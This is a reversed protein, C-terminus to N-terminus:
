LVDALSQARTFFPLRFFICQMDSIRRKNFFKPLEHSFRAQTSHLFM